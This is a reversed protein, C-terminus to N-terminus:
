KSNTSMGTNWEGKKWVYGHHGSFPAQCTIAFVTVSLLGFLVVTSRGSLNVFLCVFVTIILLFLRVSSHSRWTETCWRTLSQALNRYVM